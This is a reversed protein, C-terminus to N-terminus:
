PIQLVYEDSSHRVMMAVCDDNYIAYLMAAPEISSSTRVHVNILHQMNEQGKGWDINWAQRIKSHSGDAAVVIDAYITSGSETTLKYVGDEDQYDIDVVPSELLIASEPLQLEM